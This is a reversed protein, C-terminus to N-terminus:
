PAFIRVIKSDVFMQTTKKQLEQSIQAKMRLIPHQSHYTKGM